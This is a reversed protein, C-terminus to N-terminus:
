KFNKEILGEKGTVINVATALNGELADILRVRGYTAAVLNQTIRALVPGQKNERIHRAAFKMLRSENDYNDTTM